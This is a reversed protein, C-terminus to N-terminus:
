LDFLLRDGVDRPKWRVVTDLGYNKALQAVRKKDTYRLKAYVGLKDVSQLAPHEFPTRGYEDAQSTAHKPSPLHVLALSTQLEVIRKGTYWIQTLLRLREALSM